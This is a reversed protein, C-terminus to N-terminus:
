YQLHLRCTEGFRRSVKLLSYPTIDLFIYMNVEFGVNKKFMENDSKNYHEEKLTIPGLKVGM